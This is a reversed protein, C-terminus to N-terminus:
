QMAKARNPRRTKGKIQFLDVKPTAFQKDNVRLVVRVRTNNQLYQYYVRFKQTISQNFMLVNNTHIYVPASTDSSPLPSQTGPGYNTINEGINGDELIVTIPQYEGIRLGSALNAQVLDEDVYPYHNLSVVVDGGTGLFGEGAGASDYASVLPVNDFGKDAFNITSWTSSPVYDVTFVDSSSTEGTPLKIGMVYLGSADYIYNVNGDLPITIGNRYLVLTENRLSPFRLLGRGSGDPFFREASIQTETDIPLIPIWDSERFPNTVNSVSYEISTIINSHRNQNALIVDKDVTKIRIEGIDGVSEFPKSVFVAKQAPDGFGIAIRELGLFYTYNFSAQTAPSPSPFISPDLDMDYFHTNVTNTATHTVAQYVDRFKSIFFLATANLGGSQRLGRLIPALPTDLISPTHMVNASVPPALLSLDGSGNIQESLAYVIDEADGPLLWTDRPGFRERNSFLRAIKDRNLHKNVGRPLAIHILRDREDKSLGALIRVFAQYIGASDPQSTSPNPEGVAITSALNDYTQEGSAFEAKRNYVPQNLLVRFKAVTRAPFHITFPRDITQPADLVDFKKSNDLVNEYLVVRVVQIPHEAFPVIRVETCPGPNHMIYEIYVQAGTVGNADALGSSVPNPSGIVYRWGRESTSQTSNQIGNNTIAMAIANGDIITGSIPSTVLSQESIALVGEDSRVSAQEAPGFNQSARDTVPFDFSDRNLEDNFPELYAYDFSGGDSLLFAYNQIQKELASVEAELAAVESMLISRDGNILDSVGNDLSYLEDMQVGIDRFNLSISTRSILSGFEEEGLILPTFDKFNVLREAILQLQDKGVKAEELLTSVREVSRGTLTSIFSDLFLNM